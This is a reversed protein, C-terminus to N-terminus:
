NVQNTKESSSHHHHHHHHHHPKLRFDNRWYNVFFSAMLLWLIFDIIRGIVTQLEEFESIALLYGLGIFKPALAILVAIISNRIAENSIRGSRYLFFYLFFIILPLWILNDVIYASAPVVEKWVIDISSFFAFYASHLAKAFALALVLFPIKEPSFNPDLNKEKKM